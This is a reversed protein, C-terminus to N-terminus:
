YDKRRKERFWELPIKGESWPFGHQEAWQSYTRSNKSKTLRQNAKQFVFRIDFSPNEKKVQVMKTRDSPRLYGKCEVMIGNPLVFDTYYNYVLTYKLRLEKPEYELQKGKRVADEYVREEFKSRFKLSM